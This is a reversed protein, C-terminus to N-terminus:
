EARQSDASEESLLPSGESLNLGLLGAAEKMCGVLARLVDATPWEDQLREILQRVRADILPASWQLDKGAELLWIRLDFALEKVEEPSETTRQFLALLSKEVVFRRNGM